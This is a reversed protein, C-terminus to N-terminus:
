KGTGLRAKARKSSAKLLKHALEYDGQSDKFIKLIQRGSIGYQNILSVRSVKNGNIDKYEAHTYKVRKPQDHAYRGATMLPGKISLRNLCASAISNQVTLRKAHHTAPNNISM